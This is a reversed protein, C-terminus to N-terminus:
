ATLDQELYQSNPGLKDTMQSQLDSLAKIRGVLERARPEGEWRGLALEETHAVKQQQIYDLMYRLPDKQRPIPM